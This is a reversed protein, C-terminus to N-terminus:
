WWFTINVSSTFLGFNIAKFKQSFNLDAGVGVGLTIQPVVEYEVGMLAAVGLQVTDGAHKFDSIGLHVAPELYPRVKGSMPKYMRYGAIFDFGFITASPTMLVPDAPSKNFSVGIGLDLLAKDNLGWLFDAHAADGGTPFSTEIGKTGSKLGSYAGGEMNMGAKVDPKVEATATGEGGGTADEGEAFAASTVSCILTAFAVALLKRMFDGGEHKKSSAQM